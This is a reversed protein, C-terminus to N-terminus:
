KMSKNSPRNMDVLPFSENPININHSNDNEKEENNIINNKKEENEINININIEEEKNNMIDDNVILPENIRKEMEIPNKIRINDVDDNEEILNVDKKKEFLNFSKFIEIMFLFFLPFTIIIAYVIVVGAGLVRFGRDIALNFWSPPFKKEYSIYVTDFLLNSCIFISYLAYIFSFLIFSLYAIKNNRGICKNIWFCHHSLELVCKNCLFCHKIIIKNDNSDNDDDNNSNEVYCIPCYNKLDVEQDILKKFPNKIDELKCENILQHNKLYGPDKNIFIIYTLLCLFVTGLNVYTHYMEELFPLVLIFIIIEPIIIMLLMMKKYIDKPKIYTTPVDLTCLPYFEKDSLINVINMYNKKRAIDIPLENHNNLINKDAGYQLLLRVIKERNNTSALHLPTFKEKDLANINAKLSLLYLVSELAGSYCAWHLPTSGNEDVNLIDLPENLLFYILTSPQNSEAALHLVNKGLNTVAEIKAGFQKLLKIIQMNGNITAYHLATFGENTKENIYNEIKYKRSIGIEKKVKEIIELSLDYNNKFVTRHLCTYGNVDKIKWILLEPDKLLKDIKRIEDDNIADLFESTKVNSIINLSDASERIKRSFM